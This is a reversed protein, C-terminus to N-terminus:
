EAERNKPPRGRRPKDEEVVVRTYGFWSIMREAKDEPLSVRTGTPTLLDIM